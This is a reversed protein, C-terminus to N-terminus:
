APPHLLRTLEDIDVPKVLHADFGNELARRRAEEEGYGTVAILLAGPGLAPRLQRAVAYGDM